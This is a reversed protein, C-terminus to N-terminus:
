KLNKLVEINITVRVISQRQPEKKMSQQVRPEEQREAGRHTSRASNLNQETYTNTQLLVRENEDSYGRASERASNRGANINSSSSQREFRAAQQQQQQGYPIPDIKLNERFSQNKSQKSSNMIDSQNTAKQRESPNPTKNNRERETNSENRVSGRNM